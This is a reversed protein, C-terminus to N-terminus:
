EDEDFELWDDTRRSSKRRREAVVEGLREDFILRRKKQRAQQKKRLREVEELGEDDESWGEEAPMEFTTVEEEVEEEVAQDPESLLAESAAMVEAVAETVPEPETEAPIEEVVPEETAEAVAAEAELVEPAAEVEDIEIIGESTAEAVLQEAAAVAEEDLQGGVSQGSLIAEAEALIDRARAAKAAKAEAEEKAKRERTIALEALNALEIAEAFIKLEGESYDVPNKEARITSAINFIELKDAVRARIEEHDKVKNITEEIAESASKIDIRWGTLKAALRANQGEKGIALSLQKDPVVVIATKGNRDQLMVNM